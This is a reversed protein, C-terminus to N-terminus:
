YYVLIVLNYLMKFLDYVKTVIVTISQLWFSMHQLWCLPLPPPPLGLELNVLLVVSVVPYWCLCHWRATHLPSFYIDETSCQDHLCLTSNIPTRHHVVFRNCEPLFGMCLAEFQSASLLLYYRVYKLFGKESPPNFTCQQLTGDLCFHVQFCWRSISFLFSVMFFYCEDM